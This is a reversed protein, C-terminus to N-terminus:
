QRGARGSLGAKVSMVAEASGGTLVREALWGLDHAALRIARSRAGWELWEVPHDYLTLCAWASLM